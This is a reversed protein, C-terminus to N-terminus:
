EDLNGGSINNITHNAELSKAEEWLKDMEDLSMETLLRGCALSKEEIYNFRRIFKETSMRLAEEPDVKLFRSANVVSFLLDGLEETIHPLDGRREKAETLEATEERIKDMAGSVDDWDFGADAAKKQIKAARTM